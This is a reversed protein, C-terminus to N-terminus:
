RKMFPLISTSLKRVDDNLIQMRCKIRNDKDLILIPKIIQFMYIHCFFLIFDTFPAFVKEYCPVANRWRQLDSATIFVEVSLFSQLCVLVLFHNSICGNLFVNNTHSMRPQLGDERSSRKFFFDSFFEFDYVVWVFCFRTLLVLNLFFLRM